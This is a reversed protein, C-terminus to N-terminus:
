ATPVSSFRTFGKRSRFGEWYGFFYTNGKRGDYGPLMVPGGLTLGYQNQTFPPKTPAFRNGTSDVKDLDLFNRADLRANRLFEWAAGHFASTGSRTVVNINAGPALGFRADAIHSQVKFEEIADPPPAIAYTNDFRANNELGDM